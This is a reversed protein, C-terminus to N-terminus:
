NYLLLIYKGRLYTRIDEESECKKPNGDRGLVINGEDDKEQCFKFKYALQQAKKSNYDGWINLDKNPVCKFKKRFM